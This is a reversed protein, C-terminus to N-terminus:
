CDADHDTVELDLKALLNEDPIIHGTSWSQFEPQMV